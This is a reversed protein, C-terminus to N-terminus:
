YPMGLIDPTHGEVTICLANFTTGAPAAISIEWFNGDGDLAPDSMTFLENAHDLTVSTVIPDDTTSSVSITGLKTYDPNTSSYNGVFSYVDFAFSYGPSTLTYNITDDTVNAAEKNAAIRLICSEMGESSIENVDLETNKLSFVKSICAVEPINFSYRKGREFVTDVGINEAPEGNVMLADLAYVDTPDMGM